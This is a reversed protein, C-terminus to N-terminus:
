NEREMRKKRYDAGVKGWERGWAERRRQETLSPPRRRRKGAIGADGGDTSHPTAQSAVAPAYLSM